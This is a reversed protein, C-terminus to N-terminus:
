IKWMLRRLNSGFNATMLSLKVKNITLSSATCKGASTTRNPVLKHLWNRDVKSPILPARLSWISNKTPLPKHFRNQSRPVYAWFTKSNTTRLGRLVVLCLHLYQLTSPSWLVKILTNTTFYVAWLRRWWIGLTIKLWTTSKAETNM